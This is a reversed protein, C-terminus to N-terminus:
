LIRNYTLHITATGVLPDREIIDRVQLAEGRTTDFLKISYGKGVKQTKDEWKIFDISVVDKINEM